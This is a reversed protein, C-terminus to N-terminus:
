MLSAQLTIMLYAQLYVESWEMLTQMMEPTYNALASVGDDKAIENIKNAIDIAIYEKMNMVGM